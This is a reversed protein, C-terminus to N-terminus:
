TNSTALAVVTVAAVLGVSAFPIPDGNKADTVRGKIVFQGWVPLVAILLFFALMISIKCKM